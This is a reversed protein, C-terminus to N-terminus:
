RAEFRVTTGPPLLAPPDRAEDWLDADTTGLLHWGGPSECPYVGCYEDAIAVSGAPVRTRPTSRRPMRLALPLGVLYAFGRMFGCFAVSYTAATHLRVVEAITMQSAAAIEALDTGDYRVSIVVENGSTPRVDASGGPTSPASAGSSPARLTSADFTGDHMLLVTRAAPVVDLVGPIPDLRWSEAAALVEVLSEFEVLVAKPGYPLTRM